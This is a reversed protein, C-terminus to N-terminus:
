CVREAKAIDYINSLKYRLEELDEVADYLDAELDDVKEKLLTNESVLQSTRKEVENDVQKQGDRLRDLERITWEYQEKYSVRPAKHKVMPALM